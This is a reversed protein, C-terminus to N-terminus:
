YKNEIKEVAPDLVTNVILDPSNGREYDKCGNYLSSSQQIKWNIRWKTTRLLAKSRHPLFLLQSPPVSPLYFM